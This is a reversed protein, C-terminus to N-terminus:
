TSCEPSESLLICFSPSSPWLIPESNELARSACVLNNIRRIKKTREKRKRRNHTDMTIIGHRPDDIGLDLRGRRCLRRNLSAMSSTILIIILRGHMNEIFLGIIHGFPSDDRYTDMYVSITTSCLQGIYIKRAHEVTSRTAKISWVVRAALKDIMPFASPALSLVEHIDPPYKTYTWVLHGDNFKRLVSVYCLVEVHKWSM